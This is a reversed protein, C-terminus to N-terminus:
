FNSKNATFMIKREDNKEKMKSFNRWVCDVNRFTLFFRPPLYKKMFFIQMEQPKKKKVAVNKQSM